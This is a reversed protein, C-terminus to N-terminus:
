KIIREMRNKYRNVVNEIKYINDPCIELNYKGRHNLMEMLWKLSEDDEGKEKISEFNDLLGQLDSDEFDVLFRYKKNNKKIKNMIFPMLISASVGAGAIVIEICGKRIDIIELNKSYEKLVRSSRTLGFAKTNYFNEELLDNNREDLLRCFVLLHTIDVSLYALDYISLGEIDIKIRMNTKKM